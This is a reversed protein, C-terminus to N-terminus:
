AGSTSSKQSKWGSPFCPFSTQKDSSLARCHSLPSKPNRLSDTSRQAETGAIFQFSISARPAALSPPFGVDRGRIVWKMKRRFSQKLLSNKLTNGVKIKFAKNNTPVSPICLFSPYPLFAEKKRYSCSDSQSGKTSRSCTKVKPWLIAAKGWGIRKFGVMRFPFLVCM